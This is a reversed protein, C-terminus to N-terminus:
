KLIFAIQRFDGHAFSSYFEYNVLWFGNSHDM